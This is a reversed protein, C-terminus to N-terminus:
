TSVGQAPAAVSEILWHSKKGDRVWRGGRSRVDDNVPGWLDGLFKKPTLTVGEPTQLVDLMDINPITSVITAASDIPINLNFPNPPTDGTQAQEKRAAEKGNMKDAYAKKIQHIGEVSAAIDQLAQVQQAGAMNAAAEDVRSQLDNIIEVTTDIITTLETVKGDLSSLEHRLQEVPDPLAEALTKTKRPM